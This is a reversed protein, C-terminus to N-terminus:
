SATGLYNPIHGEQKKQQTIYKQISDDTLEVSDEPATLYIVSKAKVEPKYHKKKEMFKCVDDTLKAVGTNHIYKFKTSIHQMTTKDNIHVDVKLITSM